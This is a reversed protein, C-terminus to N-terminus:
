LRSLTSSRINFFAAMPTRAIKAAGLYSGYGEREDFLSRGQPDSKKQGNWDSGAVLKLRLCIHDREWFYKLLRDIVLPFARPAPFSSGSQIKHLHHEILRLGVNSSRFPIIRDDIPQSVVQQSLRQILRTAHIKCSTEHFRGCFQSSHGCAENNRQSRGVVGADSRQDSFGHRFIRRTGNQCRPPNPQSARDRIRTDDNTATGAGLLFGAIFVFTNVFGSDNQGNNDNM